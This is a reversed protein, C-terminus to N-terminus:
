LISDVTVIFSQNETDHRAIWLPIGADRVSKYQVLGVLPEAYAHPFGKRANVRQEIRTIARYGLTTPMLFNHNRESEGSRRALRLIVDLYDEGPERVMLDQREHLAQGSRVRRIIVDPDSEYQLEGYEIINGGALRAGSLFHQTKQISFREAEEDSFRIVLSITLNCRASPQSSLAHPNKSSYDDKDILGSAHFQHPHLKGYLVEGLFEINHHIIGVGNTRAGIALGLAHTFGHFATPPPAGVLWYAPQANANSVEMRPIFLFKSM